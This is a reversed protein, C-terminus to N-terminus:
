ILLNLYKIYNKLEPSTKFKCIKKLNMSLSNDGLSFKFMTKETRVHIYVGTYM